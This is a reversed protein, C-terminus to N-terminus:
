KAFKYGIGILFINPATNDPGEHIVYKMEGTFRLWQADIYIGSAFHYALGAGFMAGLKRQDGKADPDGSINSKQYGFGLKTFASISDYLLISLKGALYFYWPQVKIITKTSRYGNFVYSYKARLTYLGGAEASFYRHFQYGIAAGFTWNGTGDDWQRQSFGPSNGPALSDSYGNSFAYRNYGTLGEFYIGTDTSKLYSFSSKQANMASQVLVFPSVILGAMFIALITKTKM